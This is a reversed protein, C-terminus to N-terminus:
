NYTIELGVVSHYQVAVIVNYTTKAAVQFADPYVTGHATIIEQMLPHRDITLPFVATSQWLFNQSTNVQQDVSSLYAHIFPPSNPDMPGTGHLVAIQQITHGVPVTVPFYVYCEYGLGDYSVPWNTQCLDSNSDAPM